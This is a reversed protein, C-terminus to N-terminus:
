RDTVPGVLDASWSYASYRPLRIRPRFRISRAESAPTTVPAARDKAPGGASCELIVSQAGHIAKFM